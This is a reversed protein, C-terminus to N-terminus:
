KFTTSILKPKTGIVEVYGLYKPAIRINNIGFKLNCNHYGRCIKLNCLASTNIFHSYTENLNFLSGDKKRIFLHFSKSNVSSLPTSSEYLEYHFSSLINKFSNLDMYLTRDFDIVGFETLNTNIRFAISWPINIANSINIYNCTATNEVKNIEVDLLESTSTFCHYSKNTAEYKVITPITNLYKAFNPLQIKM